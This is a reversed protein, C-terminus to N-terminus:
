GTTSSGDPQGVFNNNSSLAISVGLVLAPDWGTPKADKVVEQEKPLLGPDAASFAPGAFATLLASAGALSQVFKRM